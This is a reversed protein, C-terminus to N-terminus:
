DCLFRWFKMALGPPTQTPVPKPFVIKVHEFPPWRLYEVWGANFHTIEGNPHHYAIWRDHHIAGTLPDYRATECMTQAEMTPAPLM